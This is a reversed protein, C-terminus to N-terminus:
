EDKRGAKLDLVTGSVVSAEVIGTNEVNESSASGDGDCATTLQIVNM